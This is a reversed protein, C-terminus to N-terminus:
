KPSNQIGRESRFDLYFLRQQLYNVNGNIEILHLRCKFQSNKEKNIVSKRSM